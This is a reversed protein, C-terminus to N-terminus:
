IILKKTMQNAVGFSQVTDGWASGAWRAEVRADWM